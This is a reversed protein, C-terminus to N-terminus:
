QTRRRKISELTGDDECRCGGHAPASCRRMPIRRSLYGPLQEDLGEDTTM